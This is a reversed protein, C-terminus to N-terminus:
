IEGTMDTLALLLALTAAGLTRPLPRLHTCEHRSAGTSLWGAAGCLRRCPPEPRPGEQGGNRTSQAGAAGTPALAGCDRAAIRPLPRRATPLVPDTRRRHLPAGYAGLSGAACSSAQHEVHAVHRLQICLECGSTPTPAPNGGYPNLVHVDPTSTVPLWAPPLGTQILWATYGSRLDATVNRHRVGRCEVFRSIQLSFVVLAKITRRKM